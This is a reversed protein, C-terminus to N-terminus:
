FTHVRDKVIRSDADKYEEGAHRAINFLVGVGLLSTVLSSGGFSIFPLPLGKTPMCGTVVAINYVAQLTIMLAIGFALLRGFMDPARWSIRLGCFFFGAFLALVLLTAVVGLEEGIIAFIFDTHAEPLYFHKQMSQGFGVGTWGGMIIARLSMELQFAYTQAYKVPDLFALVRQARVESHLLAVTFGALGVTSFIGLYFLRTGGLFLISMGVVACLFTTGFDPEIFVPGLILGMLIMPVLAGQLFTDYRRQERAMWWALSLILAFKGLESPQFSFPGLRLWRRSGGIKAGIGPVLVLTLLVVTFVLLPIALSRWRHYDIRAAVLGVILALILWVIQRNVFYYPDGYLCWAKVASTSALMVIGVGLLTLVIGILVFPTKWM